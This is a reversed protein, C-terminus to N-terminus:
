NSFSEWLELPEFGKRWAAFGALKFEKVLQLKYRLSEEDEFWIRHFRHNENYTTYHLKLHDDWIYNHQGRKIYLPAKKMSLTVSTWKTNANPKKAEKDKAIPMTDNIQVPGPGHIEKAVPMTENIQVPGPGHIEKAIPMTDNIQVPGPGHIEKAIPMTDNIQVPGPGHIEKAIPMTENIQVPGPGHIEKWIPMTPNIIVPGPGMPLPKIEKPEIATSQYLKHDDTHAPKSWIRMYFPVGLILKEPPVIKSVAEVQSKVWPFTAVPGGTSTGAGVQDYAMLVMYDLNKSLAMRDYVKSWRESNSIGTVDMSTYLGLGHLYKSLYAVFDTLKDKDKYYVNEFDFNYGTFGYIESYSGLAGAIKPWITKNSLIEHTLEPDFQNTILPWIHVEQGNYHKIYSSQMDEPDSLGTKTLTFWSPSMIQVTGKKMMDPYPKDGASMPDFVMTIEKTFPKVEKVTLPLQTRKLLLQGDMEVKELGLVKAMDEFPIYYRYNEKIHPITVFAGNGEREIYVKGDQLSHNPIYIQVTNNKADVRVQYGALQALVTSEIYLKGDKMIGNYPSRYQTNGFSQIMLPIGQDKDIKTETLFKVRDTTAQNEDAAFGTNAMAAVAVFAVLAKKGIM